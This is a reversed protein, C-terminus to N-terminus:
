KFKFFRVESTQPNKWYHIITQEGEPSIHIHEMKQWGQWNTDNIKGQMIERGHGSQAEKFTLQETLNQPETRILNGKSDYVNGSPFEGIGDEVYGTGKNQPLNDRLNVKQGQINGPNIVYKTRGNWINRGMIANGIATTAGGLVFGGAAGMGMGSWASNWSWKGDKHVGSLGGMGFGGVAGSVAGTIAGYMVHNAGLSTFTTLASGAGAGAAGSAAGIAAGAAMYGWTKGSSYDWKFPNATGNAMTGGQWMGVDAGVAYPLLALSAGGTFPAAILVAATFFIDGSPDTYKTPNNVCYSYRNYSQTNGPSQVFNDPSLIRGLVPDYM